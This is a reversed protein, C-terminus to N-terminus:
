QTNLIQIERGQFIGYESLNPDSEWEGCIQMFVGTEPLLATPIVVMAKQDNHHDLTLFITKPPEVGEAWAILYSDSLSHSNERFTGTHFNPMWDLFPDSQKKLNIYTGEDRRVVIPTLGSSTCPTTQIPQTEATARILVPGTLVILILIFSYSLLSRSPPTSKNELIKDTKRVLFNKIQSILYFLGMAPLAAFIVISAAYPRMRYADTPPLFPVSIFVGIVSAMILSQVPDKRNRLWAFVGTICLAYMGWRTILNISRNEGRIYAYINYWSDSFLMKWNFFAGQLTQIPNSRILEFALQYIRRTKEPEQIQLVEPHAEFVYAWSRGGSALGYLTYSFNAFPVGSPVAVLRTLGLNLVFGLVVASASIFLVKWPILKNERLLWGAWLILIPLMFFAGARANLALTTTLLGAWIYFLNRISAGRWLLGFGLSGLAIGLSESMSIGSHARNFLFLVMLIFVAIEPGHTRQIEHATFYCALGAIATLIALSVMLNRGTISLLVALLGTFLPRRASFISFVNGNLLRLADIYYLEADYLPILGSLITSQSQGSAWLGALPMAFLSLTAAMGIFAGSRNQIRFALYLIVGAIPIVLGFGARLAMSVPRLFNPSRNALILSFIVISITLFILQWLFPKIKPILKKITM